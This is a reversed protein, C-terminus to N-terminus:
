RVFIALMFLVFLLFLLTLAVFDAANMQYDFCVTRRNSFGFGKSELAMSLHQADRLLISIVPIFLPIYKLARKFLNGERLNLGRIQQAETTTLIISFLSPILRFALSISFAIRYPMGLKILGLSFEEVRICSAFLIGAFLMIDLRLAVMIGYSLSQSPLWFLICMLSIVLVLWKLQWLNPLAHSVLILLFIGLLIGSLSYLDTLIVSILFFLCLGTIKIRPDLRQIPTDKEIYLSKHM